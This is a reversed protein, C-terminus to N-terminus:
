HVPAANPTRICLLPRAHQQSLCDFFSFSNDSNVLAHTRTRTHQVPSPNHCANEGHFLCTRAHTNSQVPLPAAHCANEFYFPCVARQDIRKNSTKSTKHKIKNM